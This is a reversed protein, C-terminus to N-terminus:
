INGYDIWNNHEDFIMKFQDYLKKKSQNGKINENIERLTIKKIANWKNNAVDTENELAIFQKWADPYLQFIERHEEMKAWPCMWCGGRKTLDYTPSLLDYKRCLDYTMSETFRYQELLSINKTKHLSELRKEEDICIGVYQIYPEEINKRDM